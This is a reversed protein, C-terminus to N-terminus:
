IGSAPISGEDAGLKREETADPSADGIDLEKVELIVDPLKLEGKEITVELKVDKFGFKSLRVLYTGPTIPHIEGFDDIRQRISYFGNQNSVVIDTAPDTAVEVKSLALGSQDLVRGSMVLQSSGCATLFALSALCAFKLM